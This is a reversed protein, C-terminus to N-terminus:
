HYWCLSARSFCPTGKASLPSLRSQMLSWKQISSRATFVGPFTEGGQMTPPTQPLPLCSSYFPCHTSTSTTLWPKETSIVSCLGSLALWASTQPSLKGPVLIATCLDQPLVTPFLPCVPPSPLKISGPIHIHHSSSWCGYRDDPSITRM